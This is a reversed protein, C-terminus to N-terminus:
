TSSKIWSKLYEFEKERIKKIQRPNQDNFDCLHLVGHVMVRILEEKFPISLQIANDRVRDVSIYIEGQIQEGESLNFTIIDTYYDHNLFQRNIKLLKKDSCFIFHISALRTKEKKFTHEFFAKLKKRNELTFKVEDFFFSVKSKTPASMNEFNTFLVVPVLTAKYYHNYSQRLKLRAM